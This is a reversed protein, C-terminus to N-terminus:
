AADKVKGLGSASNNTNDNQYNQQKTTLAFAIRAIKNAVAVATKNFGKNKELLTKAFVM